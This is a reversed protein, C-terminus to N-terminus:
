FVDERGFVFQQQVLRISEGLKQYGFDSSKRPIEMVGQQPTRGLGAVFVVNPNFSM